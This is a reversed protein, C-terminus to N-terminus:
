RAGRSSRKKRMFPIILLLLFFSAAHGRSSVSCGTNGDTETLDTTEGDGCSLEITVPDTVLVIDAGPLSAQFVIQHRGASLGSITHGDPISEDLCTLYVKDQARGVWSVGPANGGNISDSASWREGDVMTTFHLADRWPKAGEALEVKLEIQHAEIELSCAGIGTAVTLPGIGKDISSLPSCLYFLFAPACLRM